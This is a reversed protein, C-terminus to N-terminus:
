KIFEYYYHEIFIGPLRRKIFSKLGKGIPRRIKNLRLGSRHALEIACSETVWSVHQLNAMTYGKSLNRFVYTFFYPNPTAVFIKGESTLHRAAFNLLKVPDSVHEIIDGLYCYDFLEGLNSDSTADIVRIDYGDANLKLAIAEEIDIGVVSSCNDKILKHRWTPKKTNEYTHEICGIDLVKKGSIEDLFGSWPDPEYVSNIHIFFDYERLAAPAEPDNYDRWNM